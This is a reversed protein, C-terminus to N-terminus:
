ADSLCWEGIGMDLYVFAKFHCSVWFSMEDQLHPIKLVSTTISFGPLVILYTINTTQTEYDKTEQIM